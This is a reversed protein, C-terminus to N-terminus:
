SQTASVEWPATPLQLSFLTSRNWGSLPGTKLQPEQITRGPLNSNQRGAGGQEKGKEGEEKEIVAKRVRAHAGENSRIPQSGCNCEDAIGPPM